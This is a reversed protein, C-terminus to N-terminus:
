SGVNTCDGGLNEFDAYAPNRAFAWRKAYAAASTRDYEFKILM